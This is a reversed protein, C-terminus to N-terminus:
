SASRHGASGCQGPGPDGFWAGWPKGMTRCRLQSSRLSSPRQVSTRPRHPRPQLDRHQQRCALLNQGSCSQSIVSSDQADKQAQAQLDQEDVSFGFRELGMFNSYAIKAEILATEMGAKQAICEDVDQQCEDCEDNQIQLETSKDDFESQAQLDKLKEDNTQKKSKLRSLEATKDKAARKLWEIAQSASLAVEYISGFTDEKGAWAFCEEVELKCTESEQAWEECAQRASKEAERAPKLDAESNAIQTDLQMCTLSLIQSAVRNDDFESCVKNLQDLLKKIEQRSQEAVKKAKVKEAHCEDRKKKASELGEERNKVVSKVSNKLTEVDVLQSGLDQDQMEEGTFGDYSGYTEISTASHVLNGSAEVVQTFRKSLRLATEQAKVQIKEKSSSMAKATGEGKIKDILANLGITESCVGALEDKTQRVAKTQNTRHTRWQQVCVANDIYLV